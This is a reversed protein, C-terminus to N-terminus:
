PASDIYYDGALKQKLERKKDEDPTIRNPLTRYHPEALVMKDPELDKVLCVHSGVVSNPGIKLGPMVSANIGTKCNDGIIAGLKDQGTNVLENGIRVCVRQEDFRFNALVTGAGFSCNRGIISDGVYSSHFWCGDGIYSGKVETSFGIVCDAGIHSHDRVLANNGIITNSGIYAPGRIVANEFVRVKDGIIVNGEIIASQSISASPAINRQVSSLFYNVANSIHWPYKIPAWFDAYPIIKIKHGDKCMADLACEYVDDRTTKVNGAYELVRNVERHLHALINVLNGPEEGPRPKEVIHKLFNDEDIALYGGPFHEKVEYGLMYSGAKGDKAAQLLLTYAAPEIVDNPNVVVIMGDLYQAACKLADAIGLPREQLAIDIKMNPYKGCIRRIQEINAVNAIIVLHNIGAKRAIEIQHELLTKGLFDFLFKDETFPFMRKGIGGCLFVAKM